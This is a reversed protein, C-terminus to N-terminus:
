GTVFGLSESRSITKLDVKELSAFFNELSNVLGVRKAGDVMRKTMWYGLVRYSELQPEDFWQQATSQHPFDKHARVYAIIDALSEDGRVVPKIYLIKGTTHRDGDNLYEITGLACYPIGIPTTDETARLLDSSEFTIRVGLDIWIKRVANGLDSFGRDPDAGADSVVIWRCRRRVMEYIGLNEFHGGDSLYVYPSNDSTLGFLEVLLPRLSLWPADQRYPVLAENASTRTIKTKVFTAGRGDREGAPGPNGLWWGLRVNLVTLLFAISPSSHYGMNPSVAAGSIAMATGLSIGDDGPNGYEKTKRYGLNKDACGCFQPTVTFPEAKRQQWALRRTAALNLTMNIVHFPRWDGEELAHEDWLQHMRLNDSPDFGTFGDAKRGRGHPGGLFARILRNRYVAHLSFRNVNVLLDATVTVVVLGAVTIAIWIWQNCYALRVSEISDDRLKLIAATYLPQGFLWTDLWASLLILLIAAFLPGAIALGVNAITGSLSTAQGRAPTSSSKGLFATVLGSLTGLGALWKNWHAGAEELGRPGLLVLGSLIISVLAVIIFWGGARALWEREYDGNPSYSRVLVYVLQGMLMSLMFWPMGLMVLLLQPDIAVPPRATTYLYVGLWIAAGTTAAGCAWGVLDAVKCSAPLNPTQRRRSVVRICGALRLLTVVVGLVTIGLAAMAVAQWWWQSLSTLGLWSPALTTAPTLGQNALWAFCIGGGIAPLVSWALFRRQEAKADPDASRDTRYLCLLKYGLSWGALTLLVFAVLVNAILSRAVVSTHLLGAAIKISLVVLCIAPVLILWNLVLNRVVLTVAAWTDASTLGLKPTLYSSYARLHRIPEPEEDPNDRRTTLEALVDKAKKGEAKKSWYLWASLWSGIYGGGSVTSLYDFRNLLGAEALSQIVGLAVCASRIGGGSLALASLRLEGLAMEYLERRKEVETVASSPGAFIPGLESPRLAEFEKRLVQSLEFHAHGNQAPMPSGGKVMNKGIALYGTRGNQAHPGQLHVM